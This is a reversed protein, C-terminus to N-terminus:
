LVNFTARFFLTLVKGGITPVLVYTLYDSAETAGNLNFFTPYYFSRKSVAAASAATVATLALILSSFHM